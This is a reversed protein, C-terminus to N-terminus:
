ARAAIRRCASCFRPCSNAIPPAARARISDHDGRSFISAATSAIERPTARTFRTAPPESVTGVLGVSEARPAACLSESHIAYKPVGGSTRSGAERYEAASALIVGLCKDRFPFARDGIFRAADETQKMNVHELCM